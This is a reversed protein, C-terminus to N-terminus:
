HYLTKIHSWSTGQAHVADTPNIAAAGPGYPSAVPELRVFQETTCEFVSLTASGGYLGASAAPGVSFVLDELGNPVSLFIRMIRQPPFVAFACIGYCHMDALDWPPFGCGDLETGIPSVQYIQLGDPVHVGAEFGAVRDAIGHVVVFVEVLQAGHPSPELFLTQQTGSADFYIGVTSDVATAKRAPALLAAVAAVVLFSRHLQM